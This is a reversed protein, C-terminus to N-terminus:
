LTGVKVWTSHIKIFEVKYNSYFNFNDFNKLYTSVYNYTSSEVMLHFLKKTM